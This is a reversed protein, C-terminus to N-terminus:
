LLTKIYVKDVIRLEETDVTDSSPYCQFRSQHLTLMTMKTYPLYIVFTMNARMVNTHKCVFIFTVLNPLDICTIGKYLTGTCLIWSCGIALRAQYLLTAEMPASQGSIDELRTEVDEEKQSWADEVDELDEADEVEDNMSSDLGSLTPEEGLIDRFVLSLFGNNYTYIEYKCVV